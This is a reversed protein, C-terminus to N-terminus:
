AAGRFEQPGEGAKGFRKKLKFDTLSYINVNVGDTIFLENNSQDVVLMRPNVLDSLPVNKKAFSFNAILLILLVLVPKRM